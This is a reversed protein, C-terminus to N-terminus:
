TGNRGVVNLIDWWLKKYRAFNYITNPFILNPDNEPWTKQNLNTSM